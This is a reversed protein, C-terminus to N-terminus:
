SGSRRPWGHPGSEVPSQSDYEEQSLDIIHSTGVTKQSPGRRQSPVGQQSSGVFPQSADSVDGMRSSTGVTSQSALRSLAGVPIQSAM